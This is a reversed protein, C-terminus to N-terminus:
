REDLWAEYFDNGLDYHAHINRRAGSRTNRNLRHRLVQLLRMLPRNPLLTEVLDRNSAFLTLFAALDPTDWEGPSLRGRLWSRRELRPAQRLAL